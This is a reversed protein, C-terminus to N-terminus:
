IKKQITSRVLVYTNETTVIFSGWVDDRGNGQYKYSYTLFNLHLSYRECAQIQIFIM